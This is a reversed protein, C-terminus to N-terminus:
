IRPPEDEDPRSIADADAQQILDPWFRIATRRTVYLDIPVVTLLVILIAVGESAGLNKLFYLAPLFTLFLLVLFIPVMRRQASLQAKTRWPTKDLFWWMGAISSKDTPLYVRGGLRGAAADDGAMVVDRFLQTTLGRLGFLSGSLAVLWSFLLRPGPELVNLKFLLGWGVSAFLTAKGVFVLLFALFARRERASWHAIQDFRLWWWKTYTNTANEMDIVALTTGGCVYATKRIRM